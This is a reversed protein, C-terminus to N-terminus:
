VTKPKEFELDIWEPRSVIDALKLVLARHGNEKIDIEARICHLKEVAAELLVIAYEPLCHGAGLAEEMECLSIGIGRDNSPKEM